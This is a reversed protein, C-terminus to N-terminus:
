KRPDLIDNTVTVSKSGVGYTLVGQGFYPPLQQKTFPNLMQKDWKSTTVGFIRVHIPGNHATVNENKVVSMAVSCM